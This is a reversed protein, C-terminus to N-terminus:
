EQTRKLPINYLYTMGESLMVKKTIAVKPLYYVPLTTLDLTLLHEGTAINPFSYKGFSDTVTKKNEDLIITVAGVGKDQQTYEGDGDKDEFVLGSIESRSTVGFDARVIGMHAVAVEQTVPVTLVYGVPLTTADLVVYARRAKVGNFKYYGFIDTVQFKDQGLWVKAGEIPPDDRQRLGDSNLDKFVYGEISGVTDWRVGTDWLYRLGANFDYELRKSVDSRDAWINRCRV